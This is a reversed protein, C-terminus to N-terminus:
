TGPIPKVAVESKGELEFYNKDTVVKGHRDKMFWEAGDLTGLMVGAETVMFYEASAQKETKALANNVNVETLYKKAAELASEASEFQKIAFDQYRVQHWDSGVDKEVVQFRM